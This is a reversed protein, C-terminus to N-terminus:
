IVQISAKSKKAQLNKVPNTEKLKKKLETEVQFATKLVRRNTVREATLDGLISKSVALENKYLKKSNRIGEVGESM